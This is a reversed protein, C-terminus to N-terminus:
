KIEFYDFEAEVVTQYWNGDPGTERIVAAFLDVGTLSIGELVDVVEQALTDSRQVGTNAETYVQVLVSGRSQFRRNGVGGFSEQARNTNRVVIRVWETLGGTEFEENDTAIASTGTFNTVFQALIAEKAENITTM